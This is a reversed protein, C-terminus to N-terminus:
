PRPRTFVSGDAGMARNALIKACVRRKRAQQDGAGRILWYWSPPATEAGYLADVAAGVTADRVELGVRNFLM